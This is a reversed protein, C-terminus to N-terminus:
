PALSVDRTLTLIFAGEVQDEEEVLLMLQWVEVGLVCCPCLCCEELTLNKM